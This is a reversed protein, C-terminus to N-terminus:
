HNVPPSEDGEIRRLLLLADEAPDRYYGARRGADIFGHKQYFRRAPGNSPRVELFVRFVEIRRWEALANELLASAVGSRRKAPTVVLRRIEGEGGAASCAIFGVTRSGSCAIRLFTAPNLWEKGLADRSWLPGAGAQRELEAIVDLDDARAPRIVVSADAAM